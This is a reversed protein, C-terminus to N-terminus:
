LEARKEWRGAIGKSLFGLLAKNAFGVHQQSVKLTGLPKELEPQQKGAQNIGLQLVRGVEM